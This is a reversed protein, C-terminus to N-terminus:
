EGYATTTFQSFLGLVNLMKYDLHNIQTLGGDKAAAQTSADGWAVLSLVCYTSSNGQKEGLQTKNMDVDLPAETSNFLFGQPPVVPAVPFGACGLLCTIVFSATLVAVLIRM